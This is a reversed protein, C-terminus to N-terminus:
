EIFSRPAKSKFVSLSETKGRVTQESIPYYQGPGLSERSKASDEFREKKAWSSNNSAMNAEEINYMGPGINKNGSIDM